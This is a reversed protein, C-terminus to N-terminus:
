RKVFKGLPSQTFQIKKQAERAEAGVSPEERLLRRRPALTEEKASEDAVATPLEDRALTDVDLVGNSM